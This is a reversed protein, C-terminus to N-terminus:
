RSEPVNHVATGVLGTEPCWVYAEASRVNGTFGMSDHWQDTASLSPLVRVRVGKFEDLWVKHRHGTHVERYRSKAWWEPVDSAMQLPLDALKQKDGHTFCLLVRGFLYYKRIRPSNDIEVEPCRAFWADLVEGLHFTTLFDHNGAVMLVTVPAIPLLREIAEISVQKIVGFVKQYRGDCHQPTGGTTTNQLNDANAYDNGLVLLFRDIRHGQVKHLLDDLAARFIRTAIKLDYSEGVEPAWALKGFHADPISIQCLTGSGETAEYRIEPYAPAYERAEAILRELIGKAEAVRPRYRFEGHVSYLQTVQMEDAANKSWGAYAKATFKALEWVDSDIGCAAILEEPTKILSATLQIVRREGEIHDTRTEGPAAPSEHEKTDKRAAQLQEPGTRTAAKHPRKGAKVRVLEAAREYTARSGYGPFRQSLVSVKENRLVGNRFGPEEALRCPLSIFGPSPPM